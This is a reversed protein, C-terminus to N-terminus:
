GPSPHRALILDPAPRLVMVVVGLEQALVCVMVVLKEPVTVVGTQLGNVVVMPLDDSGVETPSVMGVVTPFEPVVLDVLSPRQIRLFAVVM